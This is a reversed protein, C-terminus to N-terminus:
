KMGLLDQIGMGGTLKTMAQAAERKAKELADNVASVLSKELRDVRGPDIAAPDIKISAVSMDGRVVVKIQGGASSTEVSRSGLEKEIQKMERRMSAAQQVMKLLNTM